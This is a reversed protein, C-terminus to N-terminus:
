LEIVEKVVDLANWTTVYFANLIFRRLYAMVADRGVGFQWRTWLFFPFLLSFTKSM